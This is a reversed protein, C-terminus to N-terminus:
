SSRGRSIKKKFFFIIKIIKKKKSEKNFFIIYKINKNYYIVCRQWNLILLQMKICTKLKKLERKKILCLIEL